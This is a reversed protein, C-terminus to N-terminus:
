FGNGQRAIFRMVYAALRMSEFRVSNAALSAAGLLM